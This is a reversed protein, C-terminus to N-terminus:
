NDDKHAEHLIANIAIVIDDKWPHLDKSYVSLGLEEGDVRLLVIQTSDDDGKYLYARQIEHLGMDTAIQSSLPTQYRILMQNSDVDFSIPRTRGQIIFFLAVGAAVGASIWFQVITLMMATMALLIAIGWDLLPLERLILQNETQQIISLRQLVGLFM